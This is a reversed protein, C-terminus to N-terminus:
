RAGKAKSLQARIREQVTSTNNIDDDKLREDREEPFEPRLQEHVVRVLSTGHAVWYVSDKLNDGDCKKEVTTVLAPGHWQCKELYEDDQARWDYIWEGVEYDRQPPRSRAFLSMKVARRSNANVFAVAAGHRRMQNQTHRTDGTM